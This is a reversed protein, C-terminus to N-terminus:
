LKRIEIVKDWLIKQPQAPDATICRARGAAQSGGQLDGVQFVSGLLM